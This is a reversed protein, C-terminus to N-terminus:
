VSPLLDVAVTPNESQVRPPPPACYANPLRITRDVGYRLEAPPSGCCIRVITNAVAGIVSSAPLVTALTVNGLPTLPPEICTNAM